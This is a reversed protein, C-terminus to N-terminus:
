LGRIRNLRFSNGIVVLSSSSMAIAAILPTVYGMVALPIAIINYLVAITFNQKILKNAKLAVRWSQYVPALKEGQFVIDATNQAIDIASSPSMSVSASSLSPADNLGDGVMLVKKGKERMSDIYKCKDVPSLSSFYTSIGISKAVKNVVQKTDGSLLATVLGAEQMNGVVEKADSRLSDIFNFCVKEGDINLWLELSEIDTISDEGCWQRSGLKVEKGDLFAQIGMGPFEKVKEIDVLEKSYTNSIAKSLPHKSNAALSAAIQLQRNNYQGDLLTPLGTTLTGTKDLVVFDIGALRELADGSKLLIGNKFLKGRALVQTVPVALGLACPCTIILVTIANLLALQWALGFLWWGLFTMLGMFHVIPTYLQAARDAIRVFYAQSKESQEMLKVIDGLLSTDSSKSAVIRIPASINVTGAFVRDDERVCKPITEGTILSIDLESIGWSVKGDVPVNEGASVLITMGEKLDRIPVVRQKGDKLVTATGQMKSLLEQASEKAKGKARVDLYRGILLFFLLMVASDFYIHEGHNITESVSMASALIIALSIPVDMNTHRKKLVSIASYFFPRGAYMIAPLAIVISVWHLFDQTANGMLKSEESWLGISIMMLNGMAFGAVALCRLLYKEQDNSHDKKSGGFPVLDYGLNIVANALIDGYEKAGKWSYTLRDTSMNVRASLVAEHEYLGREVRQVCAACHINKISLTLSYHGASDQVAFVSFLPKQEQAVSKAEEINGYAEECGSCCFKQGTSVPTNCYLCRALESHHAQKTPIETPEM